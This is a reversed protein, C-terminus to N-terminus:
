AKAQESKREDLKKRLWPVGQKLVSLVVEISLFAFILFYSVSYRKSMELLSLVVFSGTIYLLLIIPVTGTKKFFNRCFLIAALASLVLSAMCYYSVILAHEEKKFVGSLISEKTISEAFRSIYTIGNWLSLKKVYRSFVDTGIDKYRDFAKEAFYEQIETPTEAREQVELFEAGDARNWGGSESAGVYLNWGYASKPADFATVQKVIVGCLANFMILSVTFILVIVASKKINFESFFLYYLVIAILLIIGLPRFLTSMGLVLAPLIFHLVNGDSSCRKDAFHTFIYAGLICTFYLLEANVTNTYVIIFPHTSILAVSIVAAVSGFKDKLYFYILIVIASMAVQNLVRPIIKNYSFINFLGTLIVPYTVTGPFTASYKPDFRPSNRFIYRANSLYFQLDSEGIVFALRGYIFPFVFSLLFLFICVYVPKMKWKISITCFFVATLLIVGYYAFLKPRFSTEFELSLAIGFLTFVSIAAAILIIIKALVNKTKLM